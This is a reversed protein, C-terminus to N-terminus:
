LLPLVGPLIEIEFRTQLDQIEGDLHSLVPEDVEIECREIRVHHVEPEGIHSGGILKPLLALIRIRSGRKAFLLDLAGDDNIASPSIHFMGGAWPGNSINVLAVQGEFSEAGFRITVRQTSVGDWVVRLAALLYVFDGIPLRMTRAVSTVEAGIGIGAGNAFYRNNMRGIDVPRAPMKHKLRDILLLTADDWHLPISCAKAFDNGSGLPIVGVEATRGSELMGNVAEHVSGDGGAVLLQRAGDAVAMRVKEELDGPATSEVISHAVGNETLLEVLSSRIRRARGRGAFPNLFLPIPM